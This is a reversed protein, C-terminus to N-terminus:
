HGLDSLVQQYEERSIEGSAYRTAAIERATQGHMDQTKTQINGAGTRRIALVALWVLGIVAGITFLLWIVMVIWGLGGHGFMM